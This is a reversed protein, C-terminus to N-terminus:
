SNAELLSINVFMVGVYCVWFSVGSTSVSCFLVSSSTGSGSSMGKYHQCQM